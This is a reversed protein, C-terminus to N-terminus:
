SAKALVLYHALIHYLDSAWLSLGSNWFLIHSVSGEHGRIAELCLNDTGIAFASESIESCPQELRCLNMKGEVFQLEPYTKNWSPQFSRSWKLIASRKRKMGHKTGQYVIIQRPTTPRQLVRERLYTTSFLKFGEKNKHQTQAFLNWPPAKDPSIFALVFLPM